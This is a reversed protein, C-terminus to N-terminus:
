HPHTLLSSVSLGMPPSSSFLYFSRLEKQLLPFILSSRVVVGLIMCEPWTASKSLWLPTLKNRTWIYCAKSKDIVAAKCIEDLGLLDNILDTIMTRFNWTDLSLATEQRCLLREPPHLGTSPPCSSGTFRSPREWRWFCDTAYLKVCISTFVYLRYVASEMKIRRRDAFSFHGRWHAFGPYTDIPSPSNDFRCIERRWTASIIWHFDQPLFLETTVLLLANWPGCLFCSMHSLFRWHLRFTIM